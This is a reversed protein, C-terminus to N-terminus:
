SPPGTSARTPNPTSSLRKRRAILAIIIALDDEPDPREEIHDLLSVPHEGGPAPHEPRDDNAKTTRHACHGVESHPAYAWGSRSGQPVMTRACERAGCTLMPGLSFWTFARRGSFSSHPGKAASDTPRYHRARRPEPGSHRPLLPRLHRPRRTWLRGIALGQTRSEGSRQLGLGPM